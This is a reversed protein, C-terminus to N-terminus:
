SLCFNIIDENDPYDFITPTQSCGWEIANPFSQSSAVVCQIKESNESIYTKLEEISQYHQYYLVSIPSSLNQSEAVIMSGADYFPRSNMLLIAKQYELNSLYSNNEDLIQANNGLVKLFKSFDYKLPVFIKSVSRCGLGFYLCIDDTLKSLDNESEEGTLIAISNRNKRLLLPYKSFYYEFYRASNNSGTAIIKDFNDLRDVFSIKQAFPPFISKLIEALLPLLTKDQSSLKGIYCNGSILISFFDHFAAMPINGASIVAIRDEKDENADIQSAYKGKFQELMETSLITAVASLAYKIFPITFWKNETHQRSIASDFSAFFSNSLDDIRTNKLYDNIIIGLREFAKLRFVFTNNM